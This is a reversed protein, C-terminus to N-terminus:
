RERNNQDAEEEDEELSNEYVDAHDSSMFQDIISTKGVERGGSFLIRYSKDHKNINHHAAEDDTDVRIEVNHNNSNSGQVNHNSHTKERRRFSDGRNIM